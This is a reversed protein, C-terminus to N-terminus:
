RKACKGLRERILRFLEEENGVCGDTLFIVQRVRRSGDSGGEDGNLALKIAPAM